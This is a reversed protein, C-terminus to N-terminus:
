RAVQQIQPELSQRHTRIAALVIADLGEGQHEDVHKLMARRMRPEWFKRLHNAIEASAEVQDPYSEFFSGIQNAM